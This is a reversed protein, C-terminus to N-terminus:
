ARTKGRFIALGMLGSGLLLLSPPLPAAVSAVYPAMKLIEPSNQATFSFIIPTNGLDTLKYTCADNAISVGLGDVGPDSGAFDVILKYEEGPQANFSQCFGGPQCITTDINEWYGLNGDGHENYVMAYAPYCPVALVESSEVYTSDAAAPTTGWVAFALFVIIALAGKKAM